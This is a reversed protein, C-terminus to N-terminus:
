PLLLRRLEAVDDVVHAAGAAELEDRSGYGWTVGVAAVGAELAGEVDHRRDGVMVVDRSAPVGLEALARAILPAKSTGDDTAIRGHVATLPPRLALRSSVAEADEQLKFTLISTPVDAADLDALLAPVGPYVRQDWLGGGDILHERFYGIARATTEPDHGLGALTLATPPGLWGRLEDDPPVTWGLREHMHRLSALLGPASDSLTGDLDLLVAAPTM